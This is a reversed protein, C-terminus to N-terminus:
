SISVGKLLRSRALEGIEIRPLKINSEIEILYDSM